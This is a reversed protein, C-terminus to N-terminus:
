RDKGRSRLERDIALLTLWGPRGRGLDAVALESGVILPFGLRRAEVWARVVGQLGNRDSLALASLGLEAARAVLEEPHSAGELFSFCSRCRLEAYRPTAM